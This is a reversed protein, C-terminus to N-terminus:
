RGHPPDLRIGSTRRGHFRLLRWLRSCAMPTISPRMPAHSFVRSGFSQSRHVASIVTFDKMHVVFIVFIVFFWHKLFWLVHLISLFAEGGPRSYVSFELKFYSTSQSHHFRSRRSRRNNSFCLCEKLTIRNAFHTSCFFKVSNRRLFCYICIPRETKPPFTQKNVHM